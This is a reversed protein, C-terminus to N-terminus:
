ARPVGARNLALELPCGRWADDWTWRVMGHGLSRLADERRKEQWLATADGSGDDRGYKVFGDFEGILGITPWFFDVVAHGGDPLRFPKQLDPALFGAELIRARSLSEGANDSRGDGMSLARAVRASARLPSRTALHDHLRPLTTSGTRLAHDIMPLSRPLGVTAAVDVLTRDLDTVTLGDIVRVAPPDASRHAAIDRESRGGAVDVRLVDLRTPLAGVIPLGHLIAATVHSYVLPTPRSLAAAKAVLVFRDRAGSTSWQAEDVYVGQRVRHYEEARVARTQQWRAFGSSALDASTRLFPTDDSETTM